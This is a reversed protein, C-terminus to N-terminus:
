HWDRHQRWHGLALGLALTLGLALALAWGLTLTLVLAYLHGQWHWIFGGILIDKLSVPKSYPNRKDISDPALSLEKIFLPM